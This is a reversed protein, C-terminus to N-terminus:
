GVVISLAEASAITAALSCFLQVLALILGAGEEWEFSGTANSYQVGRYICRIFSTLTLVGLCSVTVILGAILQNHPSM